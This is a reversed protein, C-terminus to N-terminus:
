SAIFIIIYWLTNLEHITDQHTFRHGERLNHLLTSPRKLQRKYSILTQNHNTKDLILQM